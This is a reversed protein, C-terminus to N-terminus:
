PQPFFNEENRKIWNIGSIWCDMEGAKQPTPVPFIQLVNRNLKTKIQSSNLPLLPLFPPQAFSYFKVSNFAWLCVIITGVWGIRKRSGCGRELTTYCLVVTHGSTVFLTCQNREFLLLLFGGKNFSSFFLLLCLHSDSFSFFFGSSEQFFTGRRMFASAIGWSPKSCM